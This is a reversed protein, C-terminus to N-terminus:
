PIKASGSIAEPGTFMRALMCGLLHVAIAASGSTAAAWISTTEAGIHCAFMGGFDEANRPNISPMSSIESVRTGYAKFLEETVPLYGEFLMGLKRATRHQPGEEAASKRRDSITAGLGTYELPVQAKFLTFDVNNTVVSMNHENQFKAIVGSARAAIGAM